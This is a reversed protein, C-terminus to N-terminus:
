RTHYAMGLLHRRFDEFPEQWCNMLQEMTRCVDPDEGLLLNGVIRFQNRLKECPWCGSINSAPSCWRSSRQALRDGPEASETSHNSTLSAQFTSPQGASTM